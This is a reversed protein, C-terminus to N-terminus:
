KKCWFHDSTKTDWKITKEPRLWIYVLRLCPWLCPLWRFEWRSIGALCSSAPPLQTPIVRINVSYMKLHRFVGQVFDMLWPLSSKPQVFLRQKDLKIPVPLSLSCFLLFCFGFVFKLTTIHLQHAKPLYMITRPRKSRASIHFYNISARWRWRQTWSFNGKSTNM